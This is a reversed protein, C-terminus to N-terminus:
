SQLLTINLVSDLIQIPASSLLHFNTLFNWVSLSLLIHELKRISNGSERMIQFQMGYVPVPLSQKTFPFPFPFEPFYSEIKYFKRVQLKSSWNPSLSKIYLDCHTTSYTRCLAFNEKEFYHMKFLQALM